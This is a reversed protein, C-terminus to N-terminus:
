IQKGNSRWQRREKSSLHIYSNSSFSIFVYMLQDSKNMVLDWLGPTWVRIERCGIGKKPPLCFLTFMVTAIINRYTSYFLFYNFMECKASVCWCLRSSPSAVCFILVCPNHYKMMFSVCIYKLLLWMATNIFLSPPLFIDLCIYAM